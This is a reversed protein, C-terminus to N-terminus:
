RPKEEQLRNMIRRARDTIAALRRARDRCTACSLVRRRCASQIGPVLPVGLSAADLLVPTAGPSIALSLGLERVPSLDRETLVTGLGVVAEPV